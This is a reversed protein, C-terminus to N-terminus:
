GRHSQTNKGPFQKGHIKKLKEAMEYYPRKQEQSLRSWECGLQISIDTMSAEPFAEHLAARHIRSWVMFANLPRKIHGNKDQGTQMQKLDSYSM